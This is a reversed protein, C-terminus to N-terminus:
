SWRHQSEESVQTMEWKGLERFDSGLSILQRLDKDPDQEVPLPM